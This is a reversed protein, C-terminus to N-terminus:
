RSLVGNVVIFHSQVGDVVILRSPEGDVVIFRRPSGGAIGPLRRVRLVGNAIGSCMPVENV